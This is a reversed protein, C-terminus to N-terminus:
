RNLWMLCSVSMTATVIVVASQRIATSQLDVKSLDNLVKSDSLDIVVRDPNSLTFIKHEAPSSLDFVLRTKDPSQWVRVDKVDAHLASSLLLLPLILRTLFTFRM